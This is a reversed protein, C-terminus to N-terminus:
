KHKALYKVMKEYYPLLDKVMGSFEKLRLLIEEKTANLDISRKAGDGYEALLARYNSLGRMEAVLKQPCQDEAILKIVNGMQQSLDRGGSLMSANYTAPTPDAKIAQVATAAKAFAAKGVTPFSALLKQQKLFNTGIKVEDDGAGERRMKSELKDIAETTKEIAKTYAKSYTAAKSEVSALVWDLHARLVKLERYAVPHIDKDTAKIAKDLVAAYKAAEKILTKQEAVFDKLRRNQEDLKGEAPNTQDLAAMSKTIGLTGKVVDELERVAVKNRGTFALISKNFVKGWSDAIESM